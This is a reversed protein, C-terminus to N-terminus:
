RCTSLRRHLRRQRDEDEAGRRRRGPLLGAGRRLAPQRHQRGRSGRRRHDRVQHGPVGQRGQRGVGSYAFGVAIVPNYGANALLRLREEKATSPSATAPRSGGQDRHRARGQGQGPRRRRRRQVVPRRPRRHRLGSRGQPREEPRQQQEGSGPTTDTSSTDSSGGCATLVLAGALLASALTTVRRLPHRRGHPRSVILSSGHAPAPRRDAPRACELWGSAPIRAPGESTM